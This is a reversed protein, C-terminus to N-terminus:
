PLVPLLLINTKKTACSRSTRDRVRACPVYSTVVGVLVCCPNACRLTGALVGVTCRHGFLSPRPHGVVAEVVRRGVFSLVVVSLDSDFTRYLLWTSVLCKSDKLSDPDDPLAPSVIRLVCRGSM